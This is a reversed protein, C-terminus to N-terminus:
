DQPDDAELDLLLAEFDADDPVLKLYQKLALKLEPIMAQSQLFIAMQRM